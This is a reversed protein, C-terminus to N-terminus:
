YNAAEEGQDQWLQELACIEDCLASVMSALAERETGTKLAEELTKAAHELRPTGCYRTAGHLKHVRELLADQDASDFASSIAPRDEALSDLLMKLMEDALAQRGGARRRALDADFVRDSVPESEEGPEALPGGPQDMVWQELTHRLQGETIPKSLYDDLGSDLLDRRESELAHATLAVIPTHCGPAELERMRAATTKGDMGPMQIDMFVMDFTQDRFADLAQQGSDCATVTAGLEELFVRALKLNGPHDDVVMVSVPYALPDEKVADLEKGELEGSLAMLANFLRQRTAPKGQVQCHPYHELWRCVSEPNNSLALLPQGLAALNDLVPQMAQKEPHAPLGVILFDSSILEGRDLAAMLADLSHYENIRMQWHSLMHYM